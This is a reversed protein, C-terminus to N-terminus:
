LRASTRSRGAPHTTVIHKGRLEQALAPPMQETLARIDISDPVYLTRLGRLSMSLDRQYTENYPKDELQRLIPVVYNHSKYQDDMRDDVGGENWAEEMMEDGRLAEILNSYDTTLGRNQKIQIITNAIDNTLDDYNNDYLRNIFYLTEKDLPSLMLYISICTKLNNIIRPSFVQNNLYNDILLIVYSEFRRTDRIHKYADRVLAIADRETNLMEDVDSVKRNLDDEADEMRRATGKSPEAKFNDYADAFALDYTVADLLANSIPSVASTGAESTAM